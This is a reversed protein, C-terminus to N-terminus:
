ERIRADPALIHFASIGTPRICKFWGLAGSRAGNSGAARETATHRQAAGAGYVQIAYGYAGAHRRERRNAPAFDGGDFTQLAFLGVSKPTGPGIDIDDLTTVALGSLQHRGTCQQFLRWVGGVRIDIRRHAAIDTTATGIRADPSCDM